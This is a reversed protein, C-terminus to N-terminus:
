KESRVEYGGELFEGLRDWQALADEHGLEMLLGHYDPEFLLYSLFDAGREEHIGMSRVLFDMLLPLRPWYGRAM